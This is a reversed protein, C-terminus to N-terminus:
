ADKRSKSVGSRNTWFVLSLKQSKVWVYWWLYSVRYWHLFDALLSIQFRLTSVTSLSDFFFLFLISVDACELLYFLSKSHPEFQTIVIDTLNLYIFQLFIISANFHPHKCVNEQVFNVLFHSSGLIRWTARTFRFSIPRAVLALFHLKKSHRSEEWSRETASTSARRNWLPHRTLLCEDPYMIIITHKSNKDDTGFSQFVFPRIIRWLQECISFICKLVFDESNARGIIHNVKATRRGSLIKSILNKAVVIM